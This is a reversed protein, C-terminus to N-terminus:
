RDGERVFLSILVCAIGAAVAAWLGISLSGSSDAMAGILPPGVMAGFYAFSFGIGVATGLSSGPVLTAMIPMILMMPSLSIGLLFLLIAWSWTPLWLLAGSPFLAVLLSTAAVGVRYPPLCAGVLRCVPGTLAFGAITGWLIFGTYFGSEVGSLGVVETFWTPMWNIAGFYTWFLFFQASAMLLVNRNRLLASLPLSPPREAKDSRREPPVAYTHKGSLGIPEPRDLFFLVCILLAIPGIISVIGYGLRWGFAAILPALVWTALISGTKGAAVHVGLVTGFQAKSFWNALVPSPVLIAIASGIGTLLRSAVAMGYNGATGFLAAGGVMLAVGAIVLPRFGLRDALIGVPLMVAAMSFLYVSMLGGALSYSLNLEHLLPPILVPYAFTQVNQFFAQLSIASWILWRYNDGLRMATGRMLGTFLGRGMIGNASKM